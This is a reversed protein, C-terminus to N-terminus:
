PATRIFNMEEDPTVAANFAVTEALNESSSNYFRTVKLGEATEEIRIKEYRAPIVYDPTAPKGNAAPEGPIIEEPQLLILELKGASLTQVDVFSLTWDEFSIQFTSITLPMYSIIPEGIPLGTIPDIEQIWSEEVSLWKGFWALPIGQKQEASATGAIEVDSSNNSVAVTIVAWDNGNKVKVTAEADSMSGGSSLTGGIEYILFSSGAALFFQDSETDHFGTLNFIIDGDEIKGVLEKETADLGAVPRALSRGSSAYNAFFVANGSGGSQSAFRGQLLNNGGGSGPGGSSSSGGVVSSSSGGGNDDGGGGSDSCSFTFTIALGLAATLAIFKLKNM